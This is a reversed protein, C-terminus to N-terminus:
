LYRTRDIGHKKLLKGFARREKGAMRAALTVNGRTEALLHDLYNKEFRRVLSAKAATLDSEYLDGSPLPDSEWSAAPNRDMDGPPRLAAKDSLLFERHITNELERVNGPWHYDAMWALFDAHLYKQPRHYQQRYKRLYHEAILRADGPRERLPPMTFNMVNLRFLLDQRFRGAEVLQELPHNSATIIRVDAEHSGEAGLPRYKKDQLFRLLSVQGKYSLSDVEDLFLSGGQAQAILGQQRNKADTYAGKLHGFLENELLGDTLAGCNVPIFPYDRRESLYHIARAALEKGTGTEGEILVPVDCHAVKEILQLKHLFSPAQGILNLELFEGSSLLNEPTGTQGTLCQSQLRALRMSLEREQAPWAMFDFCCDILERDWTSSGGSFICLTAPHHAARLQELLRVQPQDQLDAFLLVAQHSQKPWVWSSGDRLEPWFGMESVCEILRDLSPGRAYHVITLKIMAM